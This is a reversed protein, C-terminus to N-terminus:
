KAEETVYVKALKGSSPTKFRIEYKPPEKRSSSM